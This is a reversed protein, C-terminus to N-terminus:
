LDARGLSALVHPRRAVALPVMPAEGTPGCRPGTDQRRRTARRGAGTLGSRFRHRSSSWPMDPRGLPALASGTGQRRRAAGDAPRGLSALASGTGQRRRAAGQNGSPQRFGAPLGPADRSSGVRASHSAAMAGHPVAAAAFPSAVMAATLVAGVGVAVKLRVRLGTGATKRSQTGPNERM